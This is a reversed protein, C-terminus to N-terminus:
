TWVKRGGPAATTEGYEIGGRLRKKRYPLLVAIALGEEHEVEVSVAESGSLRVDSVTAAARLADRQARLGEVLLQLIDASNPHEGLGPEGAV